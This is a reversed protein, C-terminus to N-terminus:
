IFNWTWLEALQVAFAALHDHVIYLDLNLPQKADLWWIKNSTSAAGELFSRFLYWARRESNTGCQSFRLIVLPLYLHQSIFREGFTTKQTGMSGSAYALALNIEAIRVYFRQWFISWFALFNWWASPALSRGIGQLIWINDNDINTLNDMNLSFSALLESYQARQAMEKQPRPRLHWSPMRRCTRCRRWHCWRRQHTVQDLELTFIIHLYDCWLPECLTMSYSGTIKKFIARAVHSGRPSTQRYSKPSPCREKSPLPTSSPRLVHSALVKRFINQLDAGKECHESYKYSKWPNLREHLHLKLQCNKVMLWGFCRREVPSSICASASRRQLSSIVQHLSHLHHLRSTLSCWLSRSDEQRKMSLSMGAKHAGFKLLAVVAYCHGWGVDDKGSAM